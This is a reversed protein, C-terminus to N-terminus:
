EFPPVLGKPEYKRPQIRSPKVGLRELVNLVDRLGPLSWDNGRATKFGRDNLARMVYSPTVPAMHGTSDLIRGIESLIIRAHAESRRRLAEAGKAGNTGVNRPGVRGALGASIAARTWKKEAALAKLSILDSGSFESWLKGRSVDFIQVPLKNLDEICIAGLEAKTRSLLLGLDAVILNTESSVAHDVAKRFTAHRTFVTGRYTAAAAFRTLLVNNEAEYKTLESFQRRLSHVKLYEERTTPMKNVYSFLFAPQSGEAM